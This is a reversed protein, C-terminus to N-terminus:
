VRMLSIHPEQKFLSKPQLNKDCFLPPPLHKAQESPFRGHALAVHPQGICTRFLELLRLSSAQILWALTGHANSGDCARTVQEVGQHPFLFSCRSVSRHENQLRPFVGQTPLHLRRAMELPRQEKQGSSPVGGNRGAAKSVCCHTVSPQRLM